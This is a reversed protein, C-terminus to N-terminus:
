PRDRRAAETEDYWLALQDVVVGCLGPNASLNRTEDPDRDIRYVEWSSHPSVNYIVHCLASAAGRM